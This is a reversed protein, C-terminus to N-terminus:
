RGKELKQARVDRGAFVMVKYEGLLRSVIRDTYRGRLQEPESINSSIITPRQRNLRTNILDYLTSVTFQTGLETGLDDLVLLECEFYKSTLEGREFRKGFCEREFDGLVTQATEYVVYFGNEIVTKAIATSLHTKGLGTGGLFLINGSSMGFSAAYSTCFSLYREMNERQEGPAYYDLSFTDFGQTRALSGLGSSEYGLKILERRMCACMESDVFGTDHCKECEFIPATYDAPYGHESLLYRREESLAGRENDLQAIRAQREQPTLSTDMSAALMAAGIEAFGREVRCFEPIERELRGLRETAADKARLNKRRFEEKVKILDDRNFSM